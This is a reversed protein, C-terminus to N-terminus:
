ATEVTKLRNMDICDTLKVLETVTDACTGEVAAVATVVDGMVAVVAADIPTLGTQRAAWIGTNGLDYLRDIIHNDNWGVRDLERDTWTSITALTLTGVISIISAPSKDRFFDVPLM